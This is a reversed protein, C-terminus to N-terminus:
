RRYIKKSVTRGSYVLRRLARDYWHNAIIGSKQPNVGSMMVAHGVSTKTVAHEYQCNVVNAGEKLLHNFGDPTFLSAFRTLYDYRFQDISIFVILKPPAPRKGDSPTKSCGSLLIALVVLFFKYM